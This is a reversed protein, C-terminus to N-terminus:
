TLFPFSPSCVTSTISCPVCCLFIYLAKPLFIRIVSLSVPFNPTLLFFFIFLNSFSDYFYNLYFKHHPLINQFHLFEVSEVPRYSYAAKHRSPQAFCCDPKRGKSRKKEAVNKQASSNSRLEKIACLFFTAYLWFTLRYVM